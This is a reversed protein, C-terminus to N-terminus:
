LIGNACAVHRFQRQVALLLLGDLSFSKMELAKRIVKYPNCSSDNILLM